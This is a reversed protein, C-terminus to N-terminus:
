IEIGSAKGELFWGVVVALPIFSIFSVKSFQGDDMCDTVCLQLKFFKRYVFLIWPVLHLEVSAGSDALYVGQMQTLFREVIM